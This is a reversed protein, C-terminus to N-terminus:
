DESHSNKLLGGYLRQQINTGWGTNGELMYPGTPTIVYDWAIAYIDPFSEHATIASKYIDKWSPIIFEGMRQLLADYDAQAEEPLHLAPFPRVLGSSLDIPLIIHFYGRAPAHPIEITAYSCQLGRVPINETILRLTIVDATNCLDALRPHNCLFPQILLDDRALAKQLDELTAPKANIGNVVSFVGADKGEGRAEIVYADHSHSGRRPKCFLRPCQKLYDAPDFMTNRFILGLVPSMPVGCAALRIISEYKDQLLAISKSNADSSGNRWIHFGPLEHTFVYDWVVERFDIRYLGFAYIEAPSICYSLSISLVQKLQTAKSIGEQECIAKGRYQVMRWSRRWGAFTIWRLWLIFEIIFFLSLPICSPRNLLWLQRHIRVKPPPNPLLYHWSIVGHPLSRRLLYRDISAFIRKVSM